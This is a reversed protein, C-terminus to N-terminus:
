SGVTELGRRELEELVRPLAAATREHSGPASYHDADHLLLVDGSRVDGTVTRAISEPTARATWDRGWRSWLLPDWGRRRVERLAVPSYIGLPARHLAPRRGTASAIVAAARDLDYRLGRPTVRLLCRHRYGHVAVGHGAAVIEAALAPYREVQEGVLFFTAQAGGARLAELVAPTGEPHPGDDFTLLVGPSGPRRLAVRLARALPPVVPALAPASWAAAAGAAAAAAVARL